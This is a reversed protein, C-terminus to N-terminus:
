SGTGSVLSKYILSIKRLVGLKGEKTTDFEVSFKLMTSKMPVNERKNDPNRVTAGGDSGILSASNAIREVIEKDLEKGSLAIRAQDSGIEKNLQTIPQVFHSEPDFPNPKGVKVWFKSVAYASRIKSIFEQPDPLQRVEISNFRPFDNLKSSLVSNLAKGQSAISASLTQNFTMALLQTDLDLLCHSYPAIDLDTDLFDGGENLVPFQRRSTRGLRFYLASSDITEANGVEWTKGGWGPARPHTSLITRLVESRPRDDSYLQIQKSENLTIRFLYFTYVPM